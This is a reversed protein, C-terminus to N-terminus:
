QISIEDIYMGGQGLSTIRITNAGRGIQIPLSVTKWDSGWNQANPLMLQEAVVNGNVTVKVAQGPKGPRKGSYRITLGAAGADGDNEQYWEVYGYRSQGFDVFGKGNFGKGQTSVRAGSLTADEAQESGPNAPAAASNWVFGEDSAFREQLTQFPQGNVTVLAKVTTGPVVKFPGAYPTSRITPDSQDTTYFVEIKSPAPSGRLALVQTDISVLDSTVQKKEGLICSAVLAIDGPEEGSEVYARTLGFFAMRSEAEYHKEVDVPSGNDLARVKGPGIVKFFTRNEGYPYFTGKDDTTTVRVQVIDSGAEALPKGDVSLAIKAPAAATRVVQEARIKGNELGVAKLEGPAWPVMWQCQMKDWQTGPKKQGLSKGNFFLEVEACSSYVWVPILTGPAITPHTWHPLMHVMPEDTWQSQYLYYLDKEFNALDIAGGMFARFPWGGHVYSAEGIYDYGTWRFSGAYNPIDRLLQINKRSNLRVTANDYSSNFVQKRNGRDEANIWDYTFVEKETLDPIEHVSKKMGDRYWTKTRYYGRVQWTHTNETGIFVRDTKLRDFWGIQESGGNVGLVDMFEAGSHGSTVPRTPDLEHCLEVLDEGVAGGTENGLSYIVVSPHNRDRRIWDTLDREWWTKFYYRGYDHAAKKKWGDFIEDMVLMGVEDCIDYFVPTQPNHSTRIANCGMAKLQEIRFRLIKDPVAAGLAGADQHNCVGQLKVNKGNLWMGSKPKWEVDRFGFRTSSVDVTKGAAKLTVVARYLNPSDVDWLLPGITKLKFQETQCEKVRTSKRQRTVEKGSPDIISVQVEISQHTGTTNRIEADIEVTGGDTRVFVGDRAVHVKQKVDIWTHAYIGSGTYWRASPQKENDVRVAITVSDSAAVIDSIDYAFSSWGYPRTGLKKGNAYVTSNMYVGDFAIEVHRGKWETPVEITKRYWGIGAPLYGATGGMPNDKSYEGEISWDHPVDLTRWSAHDFEVQEAGAPDGLQFKWQADFSVREARCVTVAVMLMLFLRKFM